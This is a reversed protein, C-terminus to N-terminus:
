PSPKPPVYRDLVIAACQRLYGDQLDSFQSFDPDRVTIAQPPERPWNRLVQALWDRPPHGRVKRRLEEFSVNPSAGDTAAPRAAQELANELESLEQLAQSVGNRLRQVQEEILVLRRMAMIQHQYRFTNDLVRHNRRRVKAVCDKLKDDLVRRLATRRQRIRLFSAVLYLSAFIALWAGDLGWRHVDQWYPWMGNEYWGPARLALVPALALGLVVALGWGFWSRSALCEIAQRTQRKAQQLERDEPFSPRQYDRNVDGYVDAGARTEPTLDGRLSILLRQEEKILAERQKEIDAQQAALSGLVQQSLGVTSATQKEMERLFRPEEAIRESRWQQHALNLRRFRQELDEDLREYFQRITQELDEALRPGFFWPYGFTELPDNETMAADTGPLPSQRLDEVKAFAAQVAEKWASLNSELGASHTLGEAFSLLGRALSPWRRSVSDGIPADAPHSQLSLAMTRKRRYKALDPDAILPGITRLAYIAPQTDDAVPLLLLHDVWTTTAVTTLAPNEASPVPLTLVYRHRGHEVPLAEGLWKVQEQLPDAALEPLRVILLAPDHRRLHRWENLEAHLHRTEIRRPWDGWPGRRRASVDEVQWFAFDTETFVDLCHRHVEGPLDWTPDLNCILLHM